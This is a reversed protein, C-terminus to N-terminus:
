GMRSIARLYELRIKRANMRRLEIASAEDLEARYKAALARRGAITSTDGTPRSARSTILATPLAPVSVISFELLESKTIITAGGRQPNTALIRMGVSIANLIGAKVLALCQDSDASAGPPPFQVTAVLQSGSPAIETARAIPRTPDHQYLVVPNTRYAALDIGSTSVSYGDRGTTEDSVVCRITRADGGSFRLITGDITARDRTIVSM